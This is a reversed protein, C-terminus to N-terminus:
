SLTMVAITRGLEASDSGLPRPPMRRATAITSLAQNKSTTDSPSAPENTAGGPVGGRGMAM